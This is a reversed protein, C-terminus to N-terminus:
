LWKCYKCGRVLWNGCGDRVAIIGHNQLPDHFEEVMSMKTVLTITKMIEM